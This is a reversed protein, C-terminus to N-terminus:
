LGNAYVSVESRNYYLQRVNVTVFYNGLIKKAINIRKMVDKKPLKLTLLAAGDKKLYRSMRCLVDISENTDMKMDDVILDYLKNPQAAAFQQATMKYHSVRHNRVVADSMDAPDVADVYVGRESLFHSWGGPAAGLDLANMGEKAQIGFVKFAEEIKFGARCIIDSAGSYFLVGGTWDSVNDKLYSVGMYACNEYVTLSVAIDANQPFVKYAREELWSSLVATLGTNSYAMTKESNIRCQCTFTSDKSVSQVITELMGIFISMDDSDGAIEKSNMYPHIHQLFIFKEANMENVIRDYDDVAFVATGKGRDILRVGPCRKNLENFLLPEYFQKYSVIFGLANNYLKDKM